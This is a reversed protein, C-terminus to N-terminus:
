PATSEPETNNNNRSVDGFPVLKNPGTNTLINERFEFAIELINLFILKTPPLFFDHTYAHM